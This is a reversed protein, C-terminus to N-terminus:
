SLSAEGSYDNPVYRSLSKNSGSGITAYVTSRCPHISKMPGLTAQKPVISIKSFLIM